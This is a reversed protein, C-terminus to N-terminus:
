QHVAEAKPDGVHMDIAQAEVQSGDKATVTFALDEKLRGNDLHNGLVADEGIGLQDRLRPIGRSEVLDPLKRVALAPGFPVATIAVVHPAEPAAVAAHGARQCGAYATAGVQIESRA